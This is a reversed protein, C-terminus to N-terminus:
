DQPLRSGPKAVSALWRIFLVAAAAGMVLLGWIWVFDFRIALVVFAVALWAAHFDRNRVLRRWDIKM